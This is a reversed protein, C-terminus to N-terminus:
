FFPNCKLNVAALVRKIKALNIRLFPNSIQPIQKNEPHAHCHKGHVPLLCYRMKSDDFAIQQGAHSFQDIFKVNQLNFGNTYAGPTTPIENTARAEM